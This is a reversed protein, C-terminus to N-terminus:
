GRWGTRFGRDCIWGWQSRRRARARGSRGGRIVRRRLRQGIEVWHYLCRGFRVEGGEDAVTWAFKHADNPPLCLTIHSLSFLLSRSFHSSDRWQRHIPVEGDSPARGHCQSTWRCAYINATADSPPSLGQPWRFNSMPTPIEGGSSVRRPWAGTSWGGPLFGIEPSRKTERMAYSPNIQHQTSPSARNVVEGAHARRPTPRGGYRHPPPLLHAPYRLCRIRRSMNSPTPTEGLSITVTLDPAPPEGWM